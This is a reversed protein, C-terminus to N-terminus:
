KKNKNIAALMENAKDAWQGAPEKALYQNLYNEAQDFQAKDFYILGLMYMAEPMAELKLAEQFKSEAAVTDGQIYALLGLGYYARPYTPDVAIAQDYYKKAQKYDQRMYWITAMNQYTRPYLYDVESGKDFWSLANDYDGKIYFIDGISQYADVDKANFVISGEFYEIAKDNNGIQQYCVAVEHYAAAYNAKKDIAKLYLPIAKHPDNEVLYEHAQLYYHTAADMGGPKPGCFILFVIGCFLILRSLIRTWKITKM